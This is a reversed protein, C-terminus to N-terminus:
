RMLMYRVFPCEAYAQILRALSEKSNGAHCDENLLFYKPIGKQMEELRPRKPDHVDPWACAIGM